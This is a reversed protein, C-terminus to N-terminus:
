TRWDAASVAAARRCPAQRGAAYGSRVTDYRRDRHKTPLAPPRRSDGHSLAGIAAPVQWQQVPAILKPLSLSLAPRQDPADSDEAGALDASCVDSSWDSIRM